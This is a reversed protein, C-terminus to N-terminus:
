FFIAIIYMQEVLYNYETVEKGNIYYKLSWYSIGNYNVYRAFCRCKYGNIMRNCIPKYIGGKLDIFRQEIQEFSNEKM